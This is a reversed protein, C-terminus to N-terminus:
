TSGGTIFLIIYIVNSDRSGKMKPSKLHIFGPRTQALIKHGKPLVASLLPFFFSHPHTISLLDSADSVEGRLLSGGHRVPQGRERLRDDHAAGGGSVSLFFGGEDDEASHIVCSYIIVSNCKLFFPGPFEGFFSM